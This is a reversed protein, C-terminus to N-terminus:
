RYFTPGTHCNNAMPKPKTIKPLNSYYQYVWYFGDQLFYALHLQQLYKKCANCSRVNLRAIDQLEHVLILTKRALYSFRYVIKCSSNYSLKIARNQDFRALFNDSVIPM